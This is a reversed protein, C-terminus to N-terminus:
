LSCSGPKRAFSPTYAGAALLVRRDIVAPEAEAAEAAYDGGMSAGIVSVTAAGSNRLYKVEALVDFRRGQDPPGGEPGRSHGHGRFEVFISPLPASDLRPSPKPKSPGVRRISGPGTRLCSAANEQEICTPMSWDGDETRFSIRDQAPALGSVVFAMVFARSIPMGALTGSVTSNSCLLSKALDHNAPYTGRRCLHCFIPVARAKRGSARRPYPWAQYSRGGLDLRRDGQRSQGVSHRSRCAALIAPLHSALGRREHPPITRSSVRPM